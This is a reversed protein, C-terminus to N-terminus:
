QLSDPLDPSSGAVEVRTAASTRVAKAELFGPVNMARVHFRTKAEVRVTASDEHGRDRSSQFRRKLLLRRQLPSRREVGKRKEQAGSLIATMASSCM